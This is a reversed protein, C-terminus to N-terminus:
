WNFDNYRKSQSERGIISILKNDYKSDISKLLKCADEIHIYQRLSDEHGNYTIEKSDIAEKIMNHIASKKDYPSGFLSGFRLINYKLKYIIFNRILEESAIKSIKYFSGYKGFVYM